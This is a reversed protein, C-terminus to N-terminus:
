DREVRGYVIVEDGAGEHAIRALVRYNEALFEALEPFAEARHSGYDDRWRRWTFFGPAVADVVVAPRSGGLDALFHERHIERASNEEILFHSIIHRSASPRGTLVHIEPAWGWVAVPQGPAVTGDVIRCVEALMANPFEKSPMGEGRLSFIMRPAAMAFWLALFGALVLHPRGGVIRGLRGDGGGGNGCFAVAECVLFALLATAPAILFIGHHEFRFSPMVVAALAAAFWAVFLVGLAARRSTPPWPRWGLVALLVGALIIAPFFPRLAWWGFVLDRFLKGLWEVGLSQSAGYSAGGLVYSQVALSLLGWASLWATLLAVPLLAGAGAALGAIMVRGWGDRLSPLLAAACLAAAIPLAQLKALVALACLVGCFFALVAAGRPGVSRTLPVVVLLTAGALLMAPLAESTFHLYDPRWASLSVGLLLAFAFVAGRAGCAMHVMAMVLVGTLAWVLAALFHMGRYTPPVGVVAGGALFWTTVPGVTTLDFDRWPVVGRAQSTLVGAAMVSEDVNLPQAAM